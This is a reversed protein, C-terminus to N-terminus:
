PRTNFGHHWRIKGSGRPGPRLSHRFGVGFMREDDHRHKNACPPTAKRELTASSRRAGAGPGADFVGRWKPCFLTTCQHACEVAIVPPEREQRGIGLWFVRQRSINRTPLVRRLVVRAHIEPVPYKARVLRWNESIGLRGYKECDNRKLIFGCRHKLISCHTNYESPHIKDVEPAGDPLITHPGPPQGARDYKGITGPPM